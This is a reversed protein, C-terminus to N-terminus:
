DAAEMWDVAEMLSKVMGAIEGFTEMYAGKLGAM